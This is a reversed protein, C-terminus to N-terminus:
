VQLSVPDVLAYLLPTWGQAGSKLNSTNHNSFINWEAPLLTKFTTKFYQM